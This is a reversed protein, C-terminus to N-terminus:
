HLKQGIRRTDDYRAQEMELDLEDATLDKGAVRALDSLEGIANLKADIPSSPIAPHERAPLHFPYIRAGEGEIRRM